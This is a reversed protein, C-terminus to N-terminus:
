RGGARRRGTAIMSPRSEFLWVRELTMAPAALPVKAPVARDDRVQVVLVGNAPDDDVM